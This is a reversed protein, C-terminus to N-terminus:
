TLRASNKDHNESLHLRQKGHQRQSKQQRGGCLGRGGLERASPHAFVLGKHRPVGFLLAPVLFGPKIQRHHRKIRALVDDFAKGGVIPCDGPAAGHGSQGRRQAVVQVDNRDGVVFGGVVGNIHALVAGDKSGLPRIRGIGIHITGSHGHLLGIDQIGFARRRVVQQSCPQTDEAQAFLVHLKLLHFGGRGQAGKGAANAVSHGQPGGQGIFRLGLAELRHRIGLIAADRLKDQQYRVAPKRILVRLLHLREELHIHAADFGQAGLGGLLKGDVVDTKVLFPGAAIQRRFHSNRVDLAM